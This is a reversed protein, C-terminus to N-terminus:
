GKSISAMAVVVKEKDSIDVILLKLLEINM